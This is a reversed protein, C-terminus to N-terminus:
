SYGNRSANVSTTVSSVQFLQCNSVLESLQLSEESRNLLSQSRSHYNYHLMTVQIVGVLVVGTLYHKQVNEKKM